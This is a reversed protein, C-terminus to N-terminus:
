PGFGLAAAIGEDLHRELAPDCNAGEVSEAVDGARLRVDASRGIPARPKERVLELLEDAAAFGRMRADDPPSRGALAARGWARCYRQIARVSRDFVQRERPTLEAAPPPDTRTPAPESDQGCAPQATACALAVIVWLRLGAREASVARERYSM